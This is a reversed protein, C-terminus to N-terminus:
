ETGSPRTTHMRATRSPQGYEHRVAQHPEPQDDANAGSPATGDPGIMALMAAETTALGDDEVIAPTTREHFGRM